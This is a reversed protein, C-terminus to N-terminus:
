DIILIKRYELSNKCHTLPVPTVNNAHVILLSKNILKKTTLTCVQKCKSMMCEVLRDCIKLMIQINTFPLEDLVSTSNTPPFIQM